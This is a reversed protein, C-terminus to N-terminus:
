EAYTGFERYFDAFKGDLGQPARSKEKIAFTILRFKNKFEPENMVVKFLQVVDPVPLKYAGCGFAGLVLADKGHEVGMRFITRIKNLMIAEGEPTFGGTSSRFVTELGGAFKTKGNFSLAAVTIVDCSFPTERLTFYKSRHHRFFTVNPTYIGGFNMDFPYGNAKHAVGCERINKYKTDGYQYLSLSLNSSQCLSEEQASYGEDYGGGPRKASALNLIAPNYGDAILQQALDVCDVNVCGTQVSDYTAGIDSVDYESTYLKTNDLFTQYDGFDIDAHGERWDQFLKANLHYIEKCAMRSGYRGSNMTVKMREEFSISFDSPKHKQMVEGAAKPVLESYDEGANFRRRVETSSINSEEDLSPLLVFSDVYQALVPNESIMQKVDIDNRPFVAVHMSSLHEEAHKSMAITRVKDAGQIEYLEADPYEKKIKCLTKFRSPTAGGMEYGWFELKEESECANVIIDKREEDTLYFPDNIKVTKKRLYQGNTAVFLGKDANLYAVAKKLAAVHANTM